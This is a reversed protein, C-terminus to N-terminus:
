GQSVAWWAVRVGRLAGYLMLAILRGETPLTVESTGRWTWGGARDPEGLDAANLPSVLPRHGVATAGVQATDVAVRLHGENRVSEVDPVLRVVWHLRPYQPVAYLALPCGRGAVTADFRWGRGFARRAYGALAGSRLVTVDIPLTEVGRGRAASLRQASLIEGEPEIGEPDYLVVANENTTMPM